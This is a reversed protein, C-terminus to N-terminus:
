SAAHLEPECLEQVAKGESRKDEQQRAPEGQDEPQHADHVDRV